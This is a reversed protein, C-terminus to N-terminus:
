SAAGARCPPRSPASGRRSGRASASRCGRAGRAASRARARSTRGSGSTAPTIINRKVAGGLCRRASQTRCGIGRLSWLTPAMCEILPSVSAALRRGGAPGREGEGKLGAHRAGGGEGEGRRGRERGSVTMNWPSDRPCTVRVAGGTGFRAAPSCSRGPPRARSAAADAPRGAVRSGPQGTRQGLRARVEEAVRRSRDPATVDVRDLFLHEDDQGPRQRDVHALTVLRLLVLKGLAADEDDLGPVASCSEFRCSSSSRTNM